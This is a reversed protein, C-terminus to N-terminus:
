LNVVVTFGARDPPQWPRLMARRAQGGLFDNVILSHLNFHLPLPQTGRRVGLSGWDPGDVSVALWQNPSRPPHRM